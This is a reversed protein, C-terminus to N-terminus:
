NRGSLTETAYYGKTAEATVVFPNLEVLEDEEQALVHVPLISLSVGILIPLGPIASRTSKM